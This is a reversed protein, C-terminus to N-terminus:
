KCNPCYVSGEAINNDEDCEAVTDYPDVEVTFDLPCPPIQNATFTLTFTEEESAGPDLSAIIDTDSGSASEFHM